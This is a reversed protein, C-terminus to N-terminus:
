DERKPPRARDMFEAVEQMQRFAEAKEAPTMTKQKRWAVKAKSGALQKRCQIHWAAIGHAAIYEAKSRAAAERNEEPTRRVKV